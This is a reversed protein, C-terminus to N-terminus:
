AIATRIGRALASQTGTPRRDHVHGHDRCDPDDCHTHEHSGSADHAPPRQAQKDQRRQARVLDKVGNRVYTVYLVVLRLLPDTQQQPDAVWPSVADLVRLM